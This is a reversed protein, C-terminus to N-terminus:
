CDGCEIENGCGDDVTGCAAGLEDCTACPPGADPALCDLSDGRHCYGDGGCTAGIPCSEGTGCLVSCVALDPPSCGVLALAAVVPILRLVPRM